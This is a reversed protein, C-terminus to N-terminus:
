FNWTVHLLFDLNFQSNAIQITSPFGAKENNPIFYLGSMYDDPDTSDYDWLGITSYSSLNTITKPTTLTYSTPSGTLNSQYGTVFDSSSSSQGLTIAIYPDSGSSVDWGAGNSQVIPYNNLDIRTITMSVPTLVVSCDSGSYGTPCNCTGNACTGGNFCTINYCPDSIQCQSGSYGPPCDCTGSQCVGGNFCSVTACPDPATVPDKQCANFTLALFLMPLLAYLLNKM